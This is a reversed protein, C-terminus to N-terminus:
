CSSATTSEVRRGREDPTPIAQGNLFFMMALLHGTDWDRRSMESGDRRMWDVDQIGERTEGRFFKQRRFVPHEARLRMM